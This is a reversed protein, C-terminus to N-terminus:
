RSSGGNAPSLSPRPALGSASSATARRATSWPTPPTSASPPTRCPLGSWTTPSRRGARRRATPWLLRVTSALPWGTDRLAALVYLAAVLPGKDDETGRGVIKGDVLKAEFPPSSWKQGEVGEVDGHTLLALTPGPGALTIEDVRGDYSKFQLGLSRARDELWARQRLFEPADWNEQGEVAHTRFGVIEQLDKVMREGYRVLLYRRLLCTALGVEAAPLPTGARLGAIREGVSGDSGRAASSAVRKFFVFAQSGSSEPGAMAAAAEDLFPQFDKCAGGTQAPLPLAALLLFGILLPLKRM